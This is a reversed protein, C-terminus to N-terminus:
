SESTDWTYHKDEDENINPMLRSELIDVVTMNDSDLKLNLDSSFDLISKIHDKSFKLELIAGELDFKDVNTESNRLKIFGDDSPPLFTKWGKASSIIYQLDKDSDEMSQHSFLTLVGFLKVSGPKLYGNQKISELFENERVKLTHVADASAEINICERLAKFIHKIWMKQDILGKKSTFTRALLQLASCVQITADDVTKKTCSEDRFKVEICYIELSEDTLRYYLLDPRNNPFWEGYDDIYVWGTAIACNSFVVSDFLRKTCVVGLMEQLFKGKGAAKLLISGSIKMAEEIIVKTIKDDGSPFGIRSISTSIANSFDSYNEKSLVVIACTDKLDSRYEVINLKNSSTLLKSKIASKELTNDYLIVWHFDESLKKIMELSKTSKICTQLFKYRFGTKKNGVQDQVPNTTKSIYSLLYTLGVFHDHYGANLKIYINPGHAEVAPTKEFHLGIELSKESSALQDLNEYQPDIREHEPKYLVAINKNKLSLEPIIETSSFGIKVSEYGQDLFTHQLDLDDRYTRHIRDQLGSHDGERSDNVISVLYSKTSGSDKDVFPRQIQKIVDLIGSHDSIGSFYLDTSYVSFPYVGLYKRIVRSVSQSFVKGSVEGSSESSSAKTDFRLLKCGIDLTGDEPLLYLKEEYHLYAPFQRTSILESLSSFERGKQVFNIREDTNDLLRKILSKVSEEEVVKRFILLPSISSIFVQDEGFFVAGLFLLANSFKQSFVGFKFSNELNIEALREWKKCIERGLLCYDEGSQYVQISVNNSYVIDVFSLECYKEIEKCLERYYNQLENSIGEFKDFEIERSESICWEELFEAQETDKTCFSYEINQVGSKVNELFLRAVHSCSRWQHLTDFDISWEILDSKSPNSWLVEIAVDVDKSKAKGRESNDVIKFQYSIKADSQRILSTTSYLFPLVASGLYFQLEDYTLSDDDDLGSDNSQEKLMAPVELVVEIARIKNAKNPELTKLIEFSVKSEFTQGDSLKKARSVSKKIRSFGKQWNKLKVPDIKKINNALCITLNDLIKLIADAENKQIGIKGKTDIIDDLTAAIEETQEIFSDAEETTLINDNRFKEILTSVAGASDFDSTKSKKSRAQKKSSPYINTLDYKHLREKDRIGVLDEYSIKSPGLCKTYSDFTWNHRRDDLGMSMNSNLRIRSKFTKKMETTFKEEDEIKEFLETDTYLGLHPLLNGVTLALDIENDKFNKLSNDLICLFNLIEVLSTTGSMRLDALLLRLSAIEKFAVEFTPFYDSSDNSLIDLLSNFLSSENIQNIDKISQKDSYSGNEVFIVIKKNQLENFGLNNRYYVFGKKTDSDYVGFQEEPIITQDSKFVGKASVLVIHDRKLKSNGRELLDDFTDLFKGCTVRNEIESDAFNLRFFYKSSIFNTRLLEDTLTHCVLNDMIETININKSM